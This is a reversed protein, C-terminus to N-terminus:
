RLTQAWWVWAMSLLGLGNMGVGALTMEGRTYRQDGWRWLDFLLWAVGALLAGGLVWDAFVLGLLAAEGGVLACVLLKSPIIGIRTCTTARGSAVDPHYDMIEGMLQAHVCFLVLYLWAWGSLGGPHTSGNLVLALWVVVLYALPNLLDFPPRSRLGRRPANYTANAVVVVALPALVWWGGVLVLAVASVLQAGVIWPPLARLQAATGRAGFLWSDKRPNEADIERDVIDNWGYTLLNVPWTVYALGVWFALTQWDPHPLLYLWVTQFWLGPRSVKLLFTPTM